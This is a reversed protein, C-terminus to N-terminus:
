EQWVHLDGRENVHRPCHEVRWPWGAVAFALLRRNPEGVFRAWGNVALVGFGRALRLALITAM